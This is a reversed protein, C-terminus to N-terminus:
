LAVGRQRARAVRGQARRYERIEDTVVPRGAGSAVQQDNWEPLTPVYRVDTPWDHSRLWSNLRRHLERDEGYIQGRHEYGARAAFHAPDEDPLRNTEWKLRPKKPKTTEAAATEIIPAPKHAAVSATEDPQATPVPRPPENATIEHAAAKAALKDDIAEDLEAVSLGKEFARRAVAFYAAMDRMDEYERIYDLGDLEGLNMIFLRRKEVGDRSTLGFEFYRPTIKVDVTFGELALTTSINKAFGEVARLISRDIPKLLDRRRGQQVTVTELAGKGRM